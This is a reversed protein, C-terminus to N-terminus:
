SDSTSFPQTNRIYRDSLSMIVLEVKEEHYTSMLSKYNYDMLDIIQFCVHRKNNSLGAAVSDSCWEIV